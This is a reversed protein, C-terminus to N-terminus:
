STCGPVDRGSNVGPVDVATPTYPAPAIGRELRLDDLYAPLTSTVANPSNRPRRTREQMAELSRRGDIYRRVVEDWRRQWELIFEVRENAPDTNVWPM